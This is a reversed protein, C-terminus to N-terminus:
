GYQVVGEMNSYYGGAKYKKHSVWGQTTRFGWTRRVPGTVVFSWVDLSELTLAHLYEATRVLTAGEHYINLVDDAYPDKATTRETTETYAGKLIRSTFDWPHDHLDRHDDSTLIHHIRINQDGGRVFHYREMYASGDSNLIVDSPLAKAIDLVDELSDLTGMYHNFIDDFESFEDM